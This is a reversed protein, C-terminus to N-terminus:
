PRPTPEDRRRPPHWFLLMAVLAVVPVLGALCTPAAYSGTRDIWRGIDKQMRGVAIWATFSLLGTVRGMYRVSIEQTFAYYMPFQGLSGFGVALLLGLLLGSAPLYAALCSLATLGICVAFTAMRAAHVSVRGTALRRSLIGAALCGIGAAVYYASSFFQVAQKGYGHEEELMKPMWARFYQWCLNIAIVVVILVAIRRVATGGAGETASADGAEDSAPDVDPTALDRPRILIMWAVVWVVGLAGIVRFPTRWGGMGGSNLLLVILPTAIAGLSAGSQLVSNGLARNSRSLLRQSAALACPWQGAEFFGLLVRYVLLEQYSTASGTLFGVASWALLIAPYLWRLSLWDVLFGTAVGGTAFAIGFWFELNGYDENTLHLEAQVDSAQQALAQRDMYNLATALLMLGCVAWTRWSLPAETKPTPPPPSTAITTDDGNM